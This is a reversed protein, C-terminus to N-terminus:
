GKIRGGLIQTFCVQDLLKVCLKHISQARSRDGVNMSYQLNIAIMAAYLLPSLELRSFTFRHVIPFTPHFLRWYNNLNQEFPFARVIQSMGYHEGPFLQAGEEQDMHVVGHPDYPGYHAVAGFSAHMPMSTTPYSMPPCAFSSVIVNKEDTPWSYPLSISSSPSQSAHAWNQEIFSANSSARTRVVSPGYPPTAYMQGFEPGPAPSAYGSSCSYPSQAFSDHWVNGTSISDVM